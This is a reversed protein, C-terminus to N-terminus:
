YKTLFLLASCNHDTMEKSMKKKKRHLNKNHKCHHTINVSIWFHKMNNGNCVIHLGTVRCLLGRKTDETCSELRSMTPCLHWNIGHFGLKM